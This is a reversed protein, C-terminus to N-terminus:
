RKGDVIDQEMKKLKEPSQKELDSRFQLGLMYVITDVYMDRQAKEM